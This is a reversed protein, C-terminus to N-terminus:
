AGSRRVEMSAFGGAFRDAAARLRSRMMMMMMMMM